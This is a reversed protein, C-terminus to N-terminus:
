FLRLLRLGLVLPGSNKIGFHRRSVHIQAHQKQIVALVGGRDSRKAFGDLQERCLATRAIEEGHREITGAVACAGGFCEFREQM